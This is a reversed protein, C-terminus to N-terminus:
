SPAHSWHLKMACLNTCSGRLISSGLSVELLACRPHLVRADGRYTGDALSAPDLPALVLKDTGATLMGPHVGIVLLILIVFAILLSKLVVKVLPIIM